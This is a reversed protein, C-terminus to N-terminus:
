STARELVAIYRRACLEIDLDSVDFPPWRDVNGAFSSDIRSLDLPPPADYDVLELAHPKQEMVTLGRHRGCRTPDTGMPEMLLEHTGGDGSCVVPTGVSLAEVVTNPSHDLYALHLMWDAISYVEMCQEHTVSGMYFIREDGRNRVLNMDPNAGLVILCSRGREKRARRFFEVNAGLRKQPHWNASCVFVEDHDRRLGLLGPSDCRRERRPVGNPIVVGERDHLWRRGMAQDFRSQWVVEAADACARAIGTNMGSRHQDPKMWFGDLRLVFPKDRRLRPTPEIFALAVDYDDHDALEHGMLTLQRALRLAFSNPGTRSEFNVGDFYIRM